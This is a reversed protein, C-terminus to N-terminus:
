FYFKKLNAIKKFDLFNLGAFILLLLIDDDRNQHIYTTSESM